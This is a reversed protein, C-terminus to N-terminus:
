DARASVPHLDENGAPHAQPQRQDPRAHGAPMEFHQRHLRGRPTLGMAQIIKTLLEGARGVFPEGQADEDAGPAEGVFMLEADLNGVGFVVNKRAAALNPCKVCVVVRERLEAFAAAKAEPSLAPPQPSGLAGLEPILVSQPPPAAAAAPQPV